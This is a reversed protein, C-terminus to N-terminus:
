GGEDKLELIQRWGRVTNEKLKLYRNTLPFPIYHSTLFTTLQSRFKSFHNENQWKWCSLVADRNKM